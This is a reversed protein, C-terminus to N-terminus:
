FREAPSKWFKPPLSLRKNNSPQLPVTVNISDSFRYHYREPRLYKVTVLNGDFWWGHLARYVKGAEDANSCKIYVCGEKSSTDVALHLIKAGEAKELIADQIRIPWTDGVERFVCYLIILVTLM